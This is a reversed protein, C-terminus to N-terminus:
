CRRWRGGVHGPREIDDRFRRCNQLKVNLANAKRASGRRIAVNRLYQVVTWYAGGGKEIFVAAIGIGRSGPSPAGGGGRTAFAAGHM